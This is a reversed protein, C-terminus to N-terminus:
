ARRLSDSLLSMAAERYRLSLVGLSAMIYDNDHLVKLAGPNPYLMLNNIRCDALQRMIRERGPLRTLAGGTGVLYKLSTLDKGLAITQRGQPTYLHKLQGAHRSIALLGAELCLRETLLFQEPTDPIPKYRSMVEDVSVELERNLKDKGICSVLNGANVYLGLDGEVTRKAFPEPVTMLQAIEDSGETVSHVDTTAGGIDIVCVDGLMDYLLMSAEMVSGPTPLIHGDVMERIREMGPARTIHEEFMDHICRRVPEINLTDLRPYVNETIRLPIGYDGCIRKIASHNQVNGCYIVPTKIGAEAIRRMNQLATEREGFDTGGAILILNARCDLIDDIDYEDLKGSTTNVVIAGAGLAASKAAHVTMDHMLGHVSMKLGGAASGTALMTDYTLESVGLNNMLDKRAEFLGICVDGFLVTTPAQGQGIFRPKDSLGAFANLITTTSGIEAVIADIHMDTILFDKKASDKM